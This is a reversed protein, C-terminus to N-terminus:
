SVVEADVSAQDLKKYFDKALEIYDAGDSSWSTLIGVLEEEVLNPLEDGDESIFADFWADILEEKKAAWALKQVEVPLTNFFDM